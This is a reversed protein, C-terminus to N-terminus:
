GTVAGYLLTVKLGGFPASLRAKEKLGLLGAWEPVYLVVGCDWGRFSKRLHKGLRIILDQAQRVSGLRKGYPPNLVLLGPGAPPRAAFFDARSFDVDGEVGARLANERALRVAQNQRDQGLIMAPARDRSAEKAKSKLHQWTKERFSPWAEFAFGREGGPALRRAMLAAEIALTGSGCLPDLLPLSGDYGCLLLLAAALDERLPAKGGALRYGRKHLHPGSSDLSILARRDEGRVLLRQASQDAPKALVPPELGLGALHKAVAEFVAEAVRGEHKLNSQRLTAQVALPAGAPIYVEWPVAAAQRLLDDWRRVRFDKLRLLVRGATRLHLNALYMAGLKGAFGVGGARAEVQEVGLAKLEAACLPELGPATVAFFRHEPAWAQRKCRRQLNIEPMFAIM